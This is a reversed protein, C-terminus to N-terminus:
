IGVRYNLYEKTVTGTLKAWNTLVICLVHLTQPEFRPCWWFFFEKTVLLSVCMKLKWGIYLLLKTEKWFSCLLNLKILFCYTIGRMWMFMAYGFLSFFCGNLNLVERPILLSLLIIRFTNPNWQCRILM